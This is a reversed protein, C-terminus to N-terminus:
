LNRPAHGHSSATNWSIFEITMKQPLETSNAPVISQYRVELQFLLFAFWRLKSFQQEEKANFLILVFCFYSAHLLVKTRGRLIGTFSLM